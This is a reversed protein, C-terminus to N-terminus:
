VFWSQPSYNFGLQNEQETKCPIEGLIVAGTSVDVRYSADALSVQLAEQKVTHLLELESSQFPSLNFHQTVYKNLISFVGSVGSKNLYIKSLYPYHYIYKCLFQLVILFCCKKLNRATTM